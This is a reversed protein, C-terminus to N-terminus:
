KSSIKAKFDQNLKEIKRNVDSEIETLEKDLDELAKDQDKTEPEVYRKQYEEDFWKEFKSDNETETQKETNSIEQEEKAIHKDYLSIIEPLVPDLGNKEIKQILSDATKEDLNLQEKLISIIQKKTDAETKSM